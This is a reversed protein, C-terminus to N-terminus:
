SDHNGDDTKDHGQISNETFEVINGQKQTSKTNATKSPVFVVDKDNGKTTDNTNTDIDDMDHLYKKMEKFNFNCYMENYYIIYTIYSIAIGTASGAVVDAGTHKYDTIRTLTVYLAIYTPIFILAISILPVSALKYWINSLFYSHPNNTQYKAIDRNMFYCKMSYSYSHYLYITLPFLLCFSESAHGSIFSQQANDLDKRSIEGNEYKLLANYYYPRPNGVSKKIVDTVLSTVAFSFMMLRCILYFFKLWLKFTFTTDYKWLIIGNICLISMWLAFAIGFLTPTPVTSSLMPHQYNYNNEPYPIYQQHPHISDVWELIMSVMYILAIIICDSIKSITSREKPANKISKM